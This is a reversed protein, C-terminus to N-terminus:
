RGDRWPACAGRRRIADRAGARRCARPPRARDLGNRCPQTLIAGVELAHKRLGDTTRAVRANRQADGRLGRRAGAATRERALRRGPSNDVIQPEASTCRRHIVRTRRSGRDPLARQSPATTGFRCARPRHGARQELALDVRRGLAVAVCSPARGTSREGASARRGRRAERAGGRVASRSAARASSSASQELRRDASADRM